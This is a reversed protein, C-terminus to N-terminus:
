LIAQAPKNHPSGRTLCCISERTPLDSPYSSPPPSQTICPLLRLYGGGITAVPGFQLGVCDGANSPRGCTMVQMASSTASSMRRPKSAGADKPVQFPAPVQSSGAAVSRVYWAHAAAPWPARFRVLAANVYM